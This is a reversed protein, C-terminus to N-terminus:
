AAKLRPQNVKDIMASELTMADDILTSIAWAAERVVSDGMQMDTGDPQSGDCRIYDAIAKAHALRENLADRIEDIRALPNVIFVNEQKM